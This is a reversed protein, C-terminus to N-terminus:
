VFSLHVFFKSSSGVKIINTLTLSILNDGIFSYLHFYLFECFMNCLKIITNSVLLVFICSLSMLYLYM